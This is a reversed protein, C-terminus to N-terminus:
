HTGNASVSTIFDVFLRAGLLRTRAKLAQQSDGKLSQPNYSKQMDELTIKLARRLLDPFENGGLINVQGQIINAGAILQRQYDDVEPDGRFGRLGWAVGQRFHLPSTRLTAGKVNNRLVERVSSRLRQRYTNFEVTREASM